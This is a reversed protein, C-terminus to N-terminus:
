EATLSHRCLPKRHPRVAAPDPTRSGGRGHRYPTQENRQQEHPNGRPERSGETTLFCTTVQIATQVTHGINSQYGTWATGGVAWYLSGSGQAANHLLFYFFFICFAFKSAISEGQPPLHRAIAIYGVVFILISVYLSLWAILVWHSTCLSCHMPWM